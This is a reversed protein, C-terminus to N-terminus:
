QYTTIKQVSRRTWFIISLELKQLNPKHENESLQHDYYQDKIMKNPNSSPIVPGPFKFHGFFRM